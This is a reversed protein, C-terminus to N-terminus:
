DISITLNLADCATVQYSSMVETQNNIQYGFNVRGGIYSYNLLKFNNATYLLGSTFPGSIKLPQFINNFDTLSITDFETYPNTASLYVNINVTSNKFINLDFINKMKPIDLMVDNFSSESLIRIRLEMGGKDKFEFRFNGNEDTTTEALFGGKLEGGVLINSVYTQHLDIRQNTLPQMSCDTYLRGSIVYTQENPSILSKKCSTIFM